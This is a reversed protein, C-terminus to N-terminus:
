IIYLKVSFNLLVWRNKGHMFISVSAESHRSRTRLPVNELCQSPIFVCSHIFM